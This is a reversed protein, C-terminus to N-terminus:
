LLFLKQHLSDEELFNIPKKLLNEILEYKSIKEGNILRYLTQIIPMEFHHKKMLFHASEITHISEVTSNIKHLAEDVSYGQGLWVGLQYNRSKFSNGTLIIDGFGSLGLLTKKKGGLSGVLHSIEELSRSFLLARSNEGLDLSKHIGTAIAIINKLAGCIETGIVDSSPYLSFFSCFLAKKAKKIVLPNYSALTSATFDKKMMEDAFNPGSLVGYMEKSNFFQEFLISGTKGSEQELGKSCNIIPTKEDIFPKIKSFVDILAQFPVALFVIDQDALTKEFGKEAVIKKPLEYQPFIKHHIHHTNIQDVEEEYQTFLTVKNKQGAVFALATGFKGSGIIGVKM